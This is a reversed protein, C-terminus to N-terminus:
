KDESLKLYKHLQLNLVGDIKDIMMWTILERPDLVDHISSFAFKPIDLVNRKIDKMVQIAQEFDNKDKIVFKVFDTSGLQKFAKIDMKDIMGSSQLKYDMVFSVYPRIFMSPIISGNTEISIKYNDSEKLKVVLKWLEEQQLLPEGGTITINKCGIKEVENFIDKVSMEKGCDEKLAYKTDCYSCKLNCGSFRIFTTLRGQHYYNVEGDISQFISYARM